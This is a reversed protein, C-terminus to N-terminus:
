NKNLDDIFDDVLKRNSSADLNSGLVKEAAKVALDAVEARLEALASQKEREIDERAQTQMAQVQERTKDLEETRLRDAAERADAVIQRADAEAERRAKENDEAIQKAEALAREAREISDEITKERTALAQTIPGWAYKWLVALVISFVIVTWIFLGSKPDLLAPTPPEPVQVAEQLLVFLNAAM